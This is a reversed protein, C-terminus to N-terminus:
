QGFPEALQTGAIPTHPNPDTDNAPEETIVILDYIWPNVIRQAFVLTHKNNLQGTSLKYGSEMDVLWGELVKKDMMKDDMMKDEMMQDKMMMYKSVKAIIMVQNNDKVRVKYSGVEDGGFPKDAKAATLTGEMYMPKMMKDMMKDEMMKDEMAANAQNQISPSLTLGVIAVLALGVPIIKKM